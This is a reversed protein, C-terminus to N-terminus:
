EVKTLLIPEIAAREVAEDYVGERDILPYLTLSTPVAGTGNYSVVFAKGDDSLIGTQRLRRGEADTLEPALWHDEPLSTWGATEGTITVTGSVASIEAVVQVQEGNYMGEGEFRVTKAAVRKITATLTGVEKREMPMSYMSEGDFWTYRAYQRLPICVTIEDRNRAEEPLPTEMERITYLVGDKGVGEWVSACMLDVGDDTMSHDALVLEYRVYGYPTGERVAKTMASTHQIETEDAVSNVPAPTVFPVAADTAPQGIQTMKALQEATPTFAEYRVRVEASHAILLSRGDYYASNIVATMDGVESTHVTIPSTEELVAQSAIEALRPDYRGFHEFLNLSAAIAVTTLALVTVIALVLGISLKKKMPPDEKRQEQQLLRRALYPDGQLGSLRANIAQQLRKKNEQENM